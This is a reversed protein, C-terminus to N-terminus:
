LSTRSCLKLCTVCQELAAKNFTANEDQRVPSFSLSFTGTKDDSSREAVELLCNLILAPVPTAAFFELLQHSSVCWAENSSTLLLKELLANMCARGYAQFSFFSTLAMLPSVFTACICVPSVEIWQMLVLWMQSFLPQQRDEAIASISSQLIDPLISFSRHLIVTDCISCFWHSFSRPHTAIHMLATLGALRSWEGSPDTSCLLSALISCTENEGFLLQHLIALTQIPPEHLSILSTVDETPLMDFLAACICHQTWNGVNNEHYWLDKM